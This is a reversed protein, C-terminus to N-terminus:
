QLLAHLRINQAGEVYFYQQWYGLVISPERRNARSSGCHTFYNKEITELLLAYVDEGARIVLLKATTMSFPIQLLFTTGGNANEQVKVSGKLAEIQTRVIDLGMGRGSIENVKGATSFGSEFLLETLEEKTPVRGTGGGLPDNPLLGVDIGRRRIRDYNLGQGDDQVEVIAQSGQHYAYIEISGKEPKGKERRIQPSEIGHDFANRVLQLLPAYLKEAMAKDVLVQTGTIRFDVLKGYVKALKAVMDTFRNLLNGLPIMRAELLDDRVSGLLRQQKQLTRDLENALLDIAESGRELQVTEQLATHLQM